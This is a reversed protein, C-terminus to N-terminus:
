ERPCFPKPMARNAVGSAASSNLCAQRWGSVGSSPVISANPTCQRFGFFDTALELMSISHTDVGNHTIKWIQMEGPNFVETPPDVYGLPITTQTLFSTLPLEVGLTANM